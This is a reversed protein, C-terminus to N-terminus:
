TNAYDNYFIVLSMEMQNQQISKKEFNAFLGFLVNM